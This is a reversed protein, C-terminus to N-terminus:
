GKIIAKYTKNDITVSVEKGILSPTEPQTPEIKANDGKYIIEENEATKYTKIEENNYKMGFFYGCTLSFKGYVRADGYVWANGSFDLNAECKIFGGKDGKSVDGFDKLAEIRFLKGDWKDISEKTLKYKDNKM